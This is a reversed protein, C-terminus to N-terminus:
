DLSVPPRPALATRPALIPLLLLTPTSDTVSQVQYTVGTFTFNCHFATACTSAVQGSQFHQTGSLWSVTGTSPATGSVPTRWVTGANTSGNEIVAYLNGDNPNQEMHHGELGQPLGTDWGTWTKGGDTSRYIVTPNGTDAGHGWYINGTPDTVLGLGASTNGNTIVQTWTYPGSGSGVGRYLGAICSVLVNGSTDFTVFDQNGNNPSSQNAWIQNFTVGGDTSRYTGNNETGGWYSGDVPNRVLAFVSGNGPSYAGLTNTVGNNSSYFESTNLSGFFGGCVLNTGGAALPMICGTYAGGNANHWGTATIQTWTSGDDTSRYFGISGSAGRYITSAVLSGDNPNYQITWGGISGGIPITGNITTWTSGQNTSKAVGQVRDAIYWENSAGVNFYTIETFASPTPVQTWAPGGGGGGGGGAGSNGGGCAAFFLLLVLGSVLKLLARVRDKRM